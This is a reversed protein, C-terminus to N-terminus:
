CRTIALLACQGARRARLSARSVTSPTANILANRTSGSSPDGARPPNGAVMARIYDIGAMSFGVEATRQPDHWTVTRSREQGWDVHELSELDSDPNSLQDTM